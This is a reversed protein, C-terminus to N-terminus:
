GEDAAPATPQVANAGPGGESYKTNKKKQTLDDIASRCWTIWRKAETDSRAAAQTFCDLAKRYSSLKERGEEAKYYWAYGVRFHWLGDRDAEPVLELVSLAEDYRDLNNLARGLQSLLDSTREEPPVAGIADM